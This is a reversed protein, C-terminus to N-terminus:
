TQKFSVDPYYQVPSLSWLELSYHSSHTTLLVWFSRQQFVVFAGGAAPTGAPTGPQHVRRVDIALWRSESTALRSISSFLPCVSVNRM